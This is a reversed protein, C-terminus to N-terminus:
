LNTGAHNTTWTKNHVSSSNVTSSSIRPPPTAIMRVAPLCTKSKAAPIVLLPRTPHVTPATRASRQQRSPRHPISLRLQGNTSRYLPPRHMHPPYGLQRHSNNPRRNQLDAHYLTPSATPPNEHNRKQMQGDLDIPKTKTSIDIIVATHASIRIQALPHLIIHVYNSVIIYQTLWGDSDWANRNVELCRM